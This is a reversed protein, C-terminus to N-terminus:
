PIFEFEDDSVPGTYSDHDCDTELYWYTLLPTMPSSGAIPTAFKSRREDVRKTEDPDVLNGYRDYRVSWLLKEQIRAAIVADRALRLSEQPAEMMM